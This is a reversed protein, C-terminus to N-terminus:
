LDDDDEEEASDGDSTEDKQPLLSQIPLERKKSVEEAEELTPIADIFTNINTTDEGQYISNRTAIYFPIKNKILSDLIKNSDAEAIKALKNPDDAYAANLVNRLSLIFNYGIPDIDNEDNLYYVRAFLTKKNEFQIKLNHFSYGKRKSDKNEDKKDEQGVLLVKYLGDPTTWGTKKRQADKPLKLAM